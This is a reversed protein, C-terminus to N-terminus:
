HRLWNQCLKSSPAMFRHESHALAGETAYGIRACNPPLHRLATSPTHLHGKLPTVLEPVTQLFAGYFPAQLTCTGRLHRLWNQCLKSSPATFRHESHALAGETAYGIRACKPPLRWLATSPAHLHGKLLTVLERLKPSPASFAVSPTHKLAVQREPGVRREVVAPVPLALRYRLTRHQRVVVTHQGNWVRCQLILAGVGTGDATGAAGPVGLGDVQRQATLEQGNRVLYSSVSM